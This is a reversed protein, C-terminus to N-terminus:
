RRAGASPSRAPRMAAVCAIPRRHQCASRFAAQEVNGHKALDELFELQREVTWGDTRTARPPIFAENTSM